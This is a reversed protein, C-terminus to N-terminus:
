DTSQATLVLLVFAVIDAGFSLQRVGRSIVIHKDDPHFSEPPHEVSIKLQPEFDPDYINGETDFLGTVKNVTGFDGLQHFTRGINPNKHLQLRPRVEVKQSPQWSPYVGTSSRILEIFLRPNNPM